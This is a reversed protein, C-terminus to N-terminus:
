LMLFSRLDTHGLHLAAIDLAKNLVTKTTRSKLVALFHCDRDRMLSRFRLLKAGLQMWDTSAGSGPRRSFKLYTPLYTATCRSRIPRFSAILYVSVCWQCNEGACAYGRIGIKWGLARPANKTLGRGVSRSLLLRGIEGYHTPHFCCSRFLSM